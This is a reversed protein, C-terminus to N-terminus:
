QTRWTLILVGLWVVVIGIIVRITLKENFFIIGILAALFYAMGSSVPVILSLSSAALVRIMILFGFGLCFLGLWFMPQGGLALYDSLMEPVTGEAAKKVLTLAGLNLVSHVLLLLLLQINFDTSKM